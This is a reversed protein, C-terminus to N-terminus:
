SNWTATYPDYSCKAPKSYLDNPNEIFVRCDSCVYRFECDRCTAIQDKSTNWLKKFDQSHLAKKLTTHKINGFDQKSAPCNKIHGDKDVSIKRNLCTNFQQAETFSNINVSFYQPAIFGCHDSSTISQSTWFIQGLDTILPERIKEAPCSHLTIQDIRLFEKLLQTLRSPNFSQHYPILIEITEICRKKCYSLIKKVQNFDTSSFFRLQLANCGLDNLQTFINQYPHDSQGDIDIIANEILRPTDWTLDLDPFLNLASKECFFLYEKQYLFAFYETLIAENEAGFINKIEQIKKDKYKTIIEFLSNPIFDLKNRELDCIVSRVAGKVPICTKYFCFYKDTPLIFEM